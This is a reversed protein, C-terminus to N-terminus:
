KYKSVIFSFVILSLDISFHLDFFSYFLSIYCDYWCNFCIWFVNVLKFLWFFLDFSSFVKFLRHWQNTSVFSLSNTLYYASTNLQAELISIFFFDCVAYPSQRERLSVWLSFAGDFLVGASVFLLIIPM